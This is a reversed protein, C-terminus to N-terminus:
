SYGASLQYIDTGLSDGSVAEWTNNIIVGGAYGVGFAVSVAGLVNRLALGAEIGTISIGGIDISDIGGAVQDIEALSLTRMADDEQSNNPEPEKSGADFSRRAIPSSFWAVLMKM